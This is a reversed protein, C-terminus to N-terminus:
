RTLIAYGHFCFCGILLCCTAGSRTIKAEDECSRVEQLDHEELWRYLRAETKNMKKVDSGKPINFLSIGDDM